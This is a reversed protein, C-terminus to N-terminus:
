LVSSGFMAQFLLYWQVQDYDVMFSGADASGWRSDRRIGAFGLVVLGQCLGADGSYLRAEKFEKRQAIVSVVRAEGEEGM